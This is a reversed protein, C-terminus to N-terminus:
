GRGSRGTQFRRPLGRGLFAFVEACGWDHGVVHARTLDYHDLIGVLDGLLKIMGYDDIAEPKDSDGFGRLDPAVTRYGAATLAAVQHRWLQHTDPWGHVLLVGEGGDNGSAQVNLGVGSLEIRM